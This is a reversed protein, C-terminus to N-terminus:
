QKTLVMSFDVTQCGTETEATGTLRRAEITNRTPSLSASGSINRACQPGGGDPDTSTISLQYSTRGGTVRIRTFTYTGPDDEGTGTLNGSVDQVIDMVGEGHVKHDEPDKFTLVAFWSGTANYDVGPAALPGIAASQQSSGSAGSALASPATPGASTGSQTCGAASLIFAAGGVVSSASFWRRLTSQSM